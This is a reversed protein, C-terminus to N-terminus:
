VFMDDNRQASTSAIADIYRPPATPKIPPGTHRRKVVTDLFAIGNSGRKKLSQPYPLSNFDTQHLPICVPLNPEDGREASENLGILHVVESLQIALKGDKSTVGWPLFPNKVRINKVSDKFLHDINLKIHISEVKKYFLHNSEHILHIM